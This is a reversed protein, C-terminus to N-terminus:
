SLKILINSNQMLKMLIKNFIEFKAYCDGM